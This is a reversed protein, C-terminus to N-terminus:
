TRPPAIKAFNEDALGVLIARGSPNIKFIGYEADEFTQATGNQFYYRPAGFTVGRKRRIYNILVEDERLGAETAVRSFTGVNDKNLKLVFQGSPSLSKNKPIDSSREEVYRLAMFDGLMLARPDSPRLDLLVTQGNHRIDELAKIQSSFLVIIALGGIAVLCYRIINM